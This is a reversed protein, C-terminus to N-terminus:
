SGSYNPAEQTIIVDHPHNERLAASTVQVFQAQSAMTSITSAGIYGMGARLGGTMQYLVSNVEGKFPVMGEVGEPVLKAELEEDVDHHDQFYRDRSGRKMAGLSGMGRFSKYLHGDRIIQEGPSELCGAVMTGLMVSSAGAALAKVADGSNKIGGDAIIPVGSNKAASFVNQIASLQPAGVGAVIRTTCISGPGIGVKLADVGLEILDQAASATAINGVIIQLDSYDKRVRRFTDIVKESHGHATDIIIADVGAEVLFAIRKETSIDTGVAAAVMLHGQDDLNVLPYKDVRSIDRLTMLGYLKGDKLIPLKEIKNQLMLERAAEVAIPETATILNTTMVSKVSSTKSTASKIDRSTLIGVLSNHEDVVPLGSINNQKMISKANSLPTNIDVTFPERIIISSARKVKRVEDAQAEPTLSRHLVGIGGSKAMAIAMASETVTDMAASIFPLNLSLDKTFNTKTSVASPLVNSHQPLLLVDDFTLYLPIQTSPNEM